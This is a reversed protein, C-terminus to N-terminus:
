PLQKTNASVGTPGMAGESFGGAGATGIQYTVGSGVTVASAADM